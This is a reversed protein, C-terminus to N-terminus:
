AQAPLSAGVAFGCTVAVSLSAANPFFSERLIIQFFSCPDIFPQNGAIFFIVGHGILHSRFKVPQLYLKHYQIKCLQAL